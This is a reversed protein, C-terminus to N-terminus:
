GDGANSAQGLSAIPDSLMLRMLEAQRNTETKAFVQKLHTNATNVSIGMRKAYESMREGHLLADLLRTEAPTLNYIGALAKAAPQRGGEPDNAFVIASARALGGIWSGACFPAVMVSLPRKRARRISLMEAPQAIAGESLQSARRVAELLAPEQRPDSTTLRAQRVALGDGARLSREAVANAFVVRSGADIAIAAVSLAGLVEHAVRRHLEARALLRHTQLARLVHPAALALRQRDEPEFDERDIPRHIGLMLTADSDLRLIACLSYFVGIRRLHDVYFESNQLAAYDVLERGVFIGPRGIAHWGNVAPDHKYFHTVYAQQAADDYNATAARLAITSIGGARVQIVGSESGLLGAIQTAVEPWRQTETPGAYLSDILASFRKTDM